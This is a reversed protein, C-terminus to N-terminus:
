HLNGLDILYVSATRYRNQKVVKGITKFSELIRLGPTKGYPGSRYWHTAYMDGIDFNLTNDHIFWVRKEGKLQDIDSKLNLLYTKDDTSQARVDKGEIGEYSLHNLRKYVKYQAVLNWYIYVIDGPKYNQEVFDFTKRYDANKYGGLKEPIVMQSVSSAVPAALFLAILFLSFPKIWKFSIVTEAGKAMFLVIIAALFVKLREYVPYMELGSALLTLLIPFILVIFSKKEMKYWAVIGAVFFATPLLPMRMLNRVIFNSFTHNEWVWLLGLPYELFRYFQFVIWKVTSTVSSVPMYSNHGQFWLTLWEPKQANYIYAFYHVLFSLMWLSFPVMLYMFTQWNKRLIHYLSLGCGIGAFVFVASHSFWLVLAGALGWTLLSRLDQKKNYEVYLLFAVISMLMESSYQKIEVSHYVLFPATAIIATSVFVAVPALFHNALKYFALLAVIGCLLPILRLAMENEGFLIVCSKVLVLFGLPAQQQYDLPSTVLGPLTM